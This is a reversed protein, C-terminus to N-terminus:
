VGNHKEPLAESAVVYRGALAVAVRVAFFRDPGTKRIDEPIEDVDRLSGDFAFLPEVEKQMQLWRSM